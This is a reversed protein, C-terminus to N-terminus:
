LGFPEALRVEAWDTADRTRKSGAVRSVSCLHALPEALRPWVPRVKTPGRGLWDRRPTGFLGAVRSFPCIEMLLEALKCCVPRVNQTMKPPFTRGIQALSASGKSNQAWKASLPFSDNITTM